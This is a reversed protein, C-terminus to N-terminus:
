LQRQVAFMARGSEKRGPCSVRSFHEDPNKIEGARVMGVKIRLVVGIGFDSGGNTRHLLFSCRSLLLRCTGLGAGPETQLLSLAEWCRFTRTSRAIELIKRTMRDPSRWTSSYLGHTNKTNMEETLCDFDSEFIPHTGM